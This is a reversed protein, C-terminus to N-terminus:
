RKSYTDPLDVLRRDRAREDRPFEVGGGDAFQGLLVVDRCEPAVKVHKAVNRHTNSGLVVGGTPGTDSGDVRVSTLQPDAAGGQFFNTSQVLVGSSNGIWIGTKSVTRAFSEVDCGLFVVNHCSAIAVQADYPDGKGRQERQNDEFATGIATLCNTREAHLGKDECAKLYTNLLTIMNSDLVRLGDGRCDQVTVDRLLGFVLHDLVIGHGAAGVVQV